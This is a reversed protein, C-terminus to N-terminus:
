REKFNFCTDPVYIHFSDHTLYKARTMNSLVSFAKPNIAPCSSSIWKDTQGSLQLHDEGQQLLFCREEKNAVVDRYNSRGILKREPM